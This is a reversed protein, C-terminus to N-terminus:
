AVFRLEAAGLGEFSIRITEGIQSPRMGTFSGTTVIKGAAVGTGTRALNVLAVAPALPDGAGHGGKGQFNVAGDVTLTVPINAIDLHQWDEVFEGYVFGGNCFHDAVREPWSVDNMVAFRTDVVEIAPGAAVAAAVEARTYDNDRPPLSRLFRFAIEGEAGRNRMQASPLAAPSPMVYPALLAGRATGGEPVFVKWGAFDQGLAATAADQIAHAETFNTPRCEPPLSALAEGSARAANLLAAAQDIRDQQVPKRRCVPCYSLALPLM